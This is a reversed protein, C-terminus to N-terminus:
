SRNLLKVKGHDECEGYLDDYVEKVVKHCRSCVGKSVDGYSPTIYGTGSWNDENKLADLCEEIEDFYKAVDENEEDLHDYESLEDRLRELMTEIKNILADRIVENGLYCVMDRINEGEFYSEVSDSLIRGIEVKTREM